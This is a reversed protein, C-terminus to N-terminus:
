QRNDACLIHGAQHRHSRVVPSFKQRWVYQSTHKWSIVKGRLVHMQTSEHIIRQQASPALIYLITVDIEDQNRLSAALGVGTHDLEQIHTAFLPADLKHEFITM